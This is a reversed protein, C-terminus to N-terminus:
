AHYLLRVAEAPLLPEPEDRAIRTPRNRVLKWGLLCRGHDPRDIDMDAAGACERGNRTELGHGHAADHHGVRRQVIGVLDFPEAHADTVRHRDLTGAADDRLHQAHHRFLARFRRLGVLKRVAARTRKVSRDPAIRGGGALLPRDRAAGALESARRLFDFMQLMEDGAPGEVDLPQSLLLDRQEELLPPYRLWGVDEREFRAIRFVLALLLSSDARQRDAIQEMRDRRPALDRELAEDVCEAHTM